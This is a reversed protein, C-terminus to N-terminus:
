AALLGAGELADFAALAQERTPLGLEASWREPPERDLERRLDVIARARASAVRAREAPGLRGDLWIAVDRSLEAHEAEERAIRGFAARVDPAQAAAAQFRACLAGWCERVCGEVTNELAIELLSRRAPPVVVAPPPEAGRARALATMREAHAIEDRAAQKLRTLLAHPAGFAELERALFAFAAVAAAELRATRALWEGPTEDEARAESGCLGDPRRGVCLGTDNPSGLAVESFVGDTTVRVEFRQTTIPCNNIQWTDTAVFDAGDRGVACTTLERGHAFMVLAAENPTDITGLFELLEDIDDITTVPSPLFAADGGADGTGADNAASSAGADGAPALPVQTLTEDHGFGRPVILGRELAPRNPGEIGTALLLSWRSTYVEDYRWWTASGARVREVQADCGAADAASACPEGDVEVLEFDPPTSAEGTKGAYYALSDYTYAPSLGHIRSPVADFCVLPQHERRDCSELEVAKSGKDTTAVSALDDSAGAAPAQGSCGALTAAVISGLVTHVCNATAFRTPM